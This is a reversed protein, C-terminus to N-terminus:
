HEWYARELESIEKSLVSDESFVAIYLHRGQFIHLETNSEIIIAKLKEGAEDYFSLVQCYGGTALSDATSDLELCITKNYEFSVESLEKLLFTIRDRDTIIVNWESSFDSNSCVVKKVEEESLSFEWQKEPTKWSDLEKLVGSKLLEIVSFYDTQNRKNRMGYIGILVVLLFIGFLWKNQKVKKCKM